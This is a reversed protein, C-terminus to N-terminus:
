KIMPGQGSPLSLIPTDRAAAFADMEQKQNAFGDYGYDDMLIFAGPVLRDWFYTATAVGPAACNM